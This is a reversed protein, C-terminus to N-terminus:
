LTERMQSACNLRQQNLKEPDLIYRKYVPFAIYESPTKGTQCSLSASVGIRDQLDHGFRRLRCNFINSLKM